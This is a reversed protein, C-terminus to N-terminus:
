NISGLGSIHRSLTILQGVPQRMNWLVHKGFIELTALLIQVANRPRLQVYERSTRPKTDATMGDQRPKETAGGSGLALSTEAGPPV